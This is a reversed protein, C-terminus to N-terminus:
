LIWNAQVVGELGDVLERLRRTQESIRRLQRNRREGSRELLNSNSRLARVKRVHEGLRSARRGYGIMGYPRAEGGERLGWRWGAGVEAPWRPGHHGGAPWDRRRSVVAGGPEERCFGRSPASIAQRLSLAAVPMLIGHVFVSPTAMRMGSVQGGAARGRGPKGVGENPGFGCANGAPCTHDPGPQSAM